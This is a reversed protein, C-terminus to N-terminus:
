PAGLVSRALAVDDTIVTDVGWGALAELGGPDNVTWAAVSLGAGHAEDVLRPTVLSVSPHLARCSRELAATVCTGPDFWSAVLLGTPVAPALRRLVSLSEPWFSSVVVSSARDTAVVLQAVASALRDRPDYGPEGPLDKLEINVTLGSCADLVEPLLPVHAPLEDARLGCIAGLGEVTPDHHVALAGDGTMRVDLEVGDAGLRRAREFAAV